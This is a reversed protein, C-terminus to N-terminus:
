GTNIRQVARKTGRNLVDYLLWGNGRRLDVPKLIAYDAEYRVRGNEDRPAKDLLAIGANRADEPDVSGAVRGFIWEYSGAAGFEMGEYAPSLRESETWIMEPHQKM